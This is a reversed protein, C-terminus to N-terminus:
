TRIVMKKEQWLGGAYGTVLGDNWHSQTVLSVVTFHLKKENAPLPLSFRVFSVVVKRQKHGLL